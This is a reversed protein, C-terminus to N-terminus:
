TPDVVTGATEVVNLAAREVCRTKENWVNCLLGDQGCFSCRVIGHDDQYYTLAM